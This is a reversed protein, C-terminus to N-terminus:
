PMLIDNNISLAVTDLNLEAGEIEKWAAYTLGKSKFRNEQSGQDQGILALQM